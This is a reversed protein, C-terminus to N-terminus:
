KRNTQFYLKILTKVGELIIPFNMKSKGSEREVFLIPVEHIKLDAKISKSLLDVLFSYGNYDSSQYDIEILSNRKYLRFGTTMDNINSKTSFKALKNAYKSLVKRHYGWGSSGGGEVYRSGILLDFDKKILLMKKLDEMRHSFDADMQVFYDYDKNLGWNFAEIYATGYGLKKERLILFLSKEFYNSSTVIKSTGDPSNDDVILLDCGTEIVGKIFSSMNEAENYTPSIVLVKNNNM